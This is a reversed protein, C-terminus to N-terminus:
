NFFNPHCFDYVIYLWLDYIVLIGFGSGIVVTLKWFIAVKDLDFYSM